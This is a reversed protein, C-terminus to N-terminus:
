TDSLQRKLMQKRARSIAERILEPAVKYARSMAEIFDDSAGCRGREVNYIHNVTRDLRKAAAEASTFGASVRLVALPNPVHLTM